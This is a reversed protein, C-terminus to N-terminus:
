RLYAKVMSSEGNEIGAEWFNNFENNKLHKKATDHIRNFDSLSSTHLTFNHRKTVDDVLALLVVSKKLEGRRLHYESLLLYTKVLEDKAKLGWSKELAEIIYQYAKISRREILEIKAYTQLVHIIGISDGVIRFTALAEDLLERSQLINGNQLEMVAINVLTGAIAQQVRLTRYINLSQNFFNEAKEASGKAALAAGLSNLARAISHQDGLKKAIELSKRSFNEAAAYDGLASVLKAAACLASSEMVQNANTNLSFTKNLWHYGEQYYGRIKWYPMLLECFELAMQKNKQQITFNLAARINNQEFEIEDLIEKQPNDRIKRELKKLFSFYYDRHKEHTTIFERENQKLKEYVFRRHMSHSRFGKPMVRQLFGRSVLSGLFFVSVGAIKKAADKTVIGHFVSLRSILLQEEESLQEWFTNFVSTLSRQREPLDPQDTRLFSIDDSIHDRLEVLKHNCIGHAALEIGLPLGAVLECIQEIVATDETGPSFSPKIRRAREIFFAGAPSHEISEYKQNGNPKREKMKPILSLGEINMNVEEPLGTMERSTVIFKSNETRNIVESIITSAELLHEFNDLVILISHGNLFKVLQNLAQNKEPFSIKLIKYIEPLVLDPSVVGELPVFWIGDPFNKLNQKAAEVALRTKGAGGQGIMTVLRLQPNRLHGRLQQLENQRGYFETVQLPINNPIPLIPESQERTESSEPSFKGNKIQEVLELVERAPEIGLEDKLLHIYKDFTKLSSDRQGDAAYLKILWNFAADNFPDIFLLHNAASIGDAYLGNKYFADIVLQSADIVAIRLSERKYAAWDEFAIVNPVYFGQLFDGRYLPLIEAIERAHEVSINEKLRDSSLFKRIIEILNLADVSLKIEPNLSVRRRSINLLENSKKKINALTVRLNTLANTEPMNEWFLTALEERECSAKESFIVYILIAEAKRSSFELLNGSSDTITLGGLVNISYNSSMHKGM